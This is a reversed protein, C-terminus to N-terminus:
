VCMPTKLWDPFKPNKSIFGSFNLTPCYNRLLRFYLQQAMPKTLADNQMILVPRVKGPQTGKAPNLNALWLGGRKVIEM